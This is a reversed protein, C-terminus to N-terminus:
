NRIPVSSGGSIVYNHLHELKFIQVQVHSAFTRGWFGWYTGLLSTLLYLSKNNFRQCLQGAIIQNNWKCGAGQRCSWPGGDHAQHFDPVSDVRGGVSAALFGLVGQGHVSVAGTILRFSIQCHRHSRQGCQMNRLMVRWGSTQSDDGSVHMQLSIIERMQSVDNMCLTWKMKGPHCLLMNTYRSCCAPASILQWAGGIEASMM